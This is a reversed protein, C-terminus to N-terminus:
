NLLNVHKMRTYFDIPKSIVYVTKQDKGSKKYSPNVSAGLHLHQSSSTQQLKFCLYKHCTEIPTLNEDEIMGSAFKIAKDESGM